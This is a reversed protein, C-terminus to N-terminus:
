ALSPPACEGDDGPRSPLRGLLEALTELEATSFRSSFLEEIGELHTESAERLKVYGSETLEAYVVRGDSACSARTVLAANELGALLRTIGSQTLLVGQALDVRRLRRDPAQALRLLVEYDSLTLGHSAILDADMQRTLASHTRLLHKWAEPVAEASRKIRKKLKKTKPMVQHTLWLRSRLV